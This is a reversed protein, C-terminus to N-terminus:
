GEVIYGTWKLGYPLVSGQMEFSQDLPLDRQDVRDLGWSEPAADVRAIADSEIYKVGRAVRLQLTPFPFDFLRYFNMYRHSGPRLQLM